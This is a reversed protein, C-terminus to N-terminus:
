HMRPGVSGAGLGAEQLRAIRREIGQYGYTQALALAASLHEEADGIKGSGADLLCRAWWYHTTAVLFPAGLRESRDLGARFSAVADAPMGLVAQLQGMATAVTGATLVSAAGIDDRYPALRPLLTSAAEADRLDAVTHSWLVMSNLRYPDDEVSAFHSAVEGAIVARAEDFNGNECHMTALGAKLGPLQVNDVLMQTLVPEIEETRGQAWRLFMLLVGPVVTADPQESEFGLAFADNTQAEAAELDGDLWSRLVGTWMTIWRLTPQGIQEALTMATESARDIERRNGTDLNAFVTFMSAFLRAVPDHLEEALASADRAVQLREQVMEAGLIANFRLNLVEVLVQPDGLGLAIEVAEESLVLRRELDGGPSLEQALLALLRARTAGREEGLADLAQELQGIREHDVGGVASFFGRSNALAAAVIRDTAGLREAEAAAELLTTRYEGAGVQRQATGLGIRLDVGLVPDPQVLQAHLQLAQGYYRLAEDPALAELAAEAARKSYEIAKSMDVPQTAHFWHYALDRVAAASPVRRQDELTEAIARHARARRTAGLDDYLTRRILAHTFVYHGPVDSVERVLAALYAADLIDLLEDETRNSVSALVELDFDRGIVAALALVQKAPDGLRGVRAAVVERVSDPLLWAEEHHEASAIDPMGAGLQGTDALHHLVETVFFPNGDTERYLAHALGMDAESLETGKSRELFAVLDADGLGKLEIRSVGPERRLAALTDVLSDSQALDTNRYTVVILAHLPEITAVVHRLLQLSPKDAWQLDDLVIVLAQDESARVLLDIAAAFLLYREAEPDATTSSPTLGLRSGLAPIMLGLNPGSFEVHSTLMTQPAHTVYHGLAERFPQYPAGTEEECHGFLVTAGQGHAGRAFESAITTKGMGAEGAILVVERGDRASVRKFAAELIGLEERRGVVGVEPMLSLRVPLEANGAEGEGPALPEWGVEITAVPEPIGKLELEGLPRFSHPARRGATHRTLEAALIQGGEALACLRAAEVVSDGFYDGDDPTVEGSSLGIRVGLARGSAQNHRYVAQQMAVACTLAASATSFVVMLGDGTNKVESGGSETIPRRLTSFHERRVEDAVDPALSTALQTSGVLDTFLVTVNETASSM